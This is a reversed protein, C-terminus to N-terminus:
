SRGGRPTVLYVLSVYGTFNEDHDALPFLTFLPQSVWKSVSQGVYGSRLTLSAVWCDGNKPQLESCKIFALIDDFGYTPCFYFSNCVFARFIELLITFIQFLNFWGHKQASLMEILNVAFLLSNQSSNAQLCCFRHWVCRDASRTCAFKAGSECPLNWCTNM